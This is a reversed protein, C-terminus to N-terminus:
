KNAEKEVNMENHQKIMNYIGYFFGFLFIPGLVICIIEMIYGAPAFVNALFGLGVWVICAIIFRKLTM